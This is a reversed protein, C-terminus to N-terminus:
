AAKKLGRGDRWEAGRAALKAYLTPLGAEAIRAVPWWDGEAARTPAEACVLRMTLAFHTFVHEVAGAEEWRADAPAADTPLAAMGGLLGRPPRKVLLVHGDHELWYATGSRSPRPKKEPRVPYSEPDGSARAACFSAVPCRPCGPSRPTCIGAGLDMMAQAFDGSPGEPTLADALDYLRAKGAQAFLRAVVREVNGDVVVARRGFAIAAIAAATYRGIGPLKRLEAEGDPFRGGHDRVVARACALLNRARAYYGLGAWASMVEEDAAAALAEVTPWRKTFAEFYRCVAAVTTQQLMVESLWVRYPDPREGGEARWPLRRKDVAYWRLLANSADVRM